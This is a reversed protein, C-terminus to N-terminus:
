LYDEGPHLLHVNEAYRAHDMNPIVISVKPCGSIAYKIRYTSPISSGEVEGVLGVRDLHEGM